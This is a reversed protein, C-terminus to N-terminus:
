CLPQLDRRSFPARPVARRLSFSAHCCVAAPACWTVSEGKAITIESPNFMLEGGDGGLKVTAAFAPSAALMLSLAGSVALSASQACAPADARQAQAHGPWAPLALVRAAGAPRCVPISSGACVSVDLGPRQREALAPRAGGCAPQKM